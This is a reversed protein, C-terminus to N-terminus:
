SFPPPSLPPPFSLVQYYAGPKALSLMFLGFVLLFAGGYVELKSPFVFIM